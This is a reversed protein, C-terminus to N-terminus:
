FRVLSALALNRASALKVGEPFSLDGVHASEDVKLHGVSVNLTEPLKNAPGKVLLSRILVKFSGEKEQERTLGVFNLPIKAKVIETPSVEQFDMHIPNDKLPDVQVDRMLVTTTKGDVDLTVLTSRTHQKPLNKVPIAINKTGSKGFVTAPLLGN